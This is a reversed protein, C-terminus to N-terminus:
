TRQVDNNLYSFVTWRIDAVFHLLFPEVRKAMKWTNTPLERWICYSTCENQKPNQKNKTTQKTKNQKCEAM